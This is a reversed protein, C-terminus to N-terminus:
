SGWLMRSPGVDLVATVDEDGSGRARALREGRKEGRDVIQHTAAEVALESVLQGHEVHGRELGQAAVDVLVELRRDGLDRAGEALAPEAIELDARGHTGAVRRRPLAGGDELARGVDEDGRGLREVDQEGGLAAARHERRDAGHDDVLDVREDAVLAPRVERERELAEVGEGPSLHLADAERGRLFREVLDRAEEDARAVDGVLPLAGPSEADDILPVYAGEIQPELERARREL